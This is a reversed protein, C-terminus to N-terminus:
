RWFWTRGGGGERKWDLITARADSLFLITKTIERGYRCNNSRSKEGATGKKWSNLACYAESRFVVSVGAIRSVGEGGGDAQPYRVPVIRSKILYERGVRFRVDIRRTEERGSMPIKNKRNPGNRPSRRQFRSDATENEGAAYPPFLVFVTCRNRFRVRQRTRRWGCVRRMLYTWYQLVRHLLLSLASFLIM